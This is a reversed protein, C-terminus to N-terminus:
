EFYYSKFPLYLLPHFKVGKLSSTFVVNYPEFVLPVIPCEDVIIEFIKAYLELREGSDTSVKATALYNDVEENTYYTMNGAAGHNQSDFLSSLVYDCDGVADSMGMLMLEYNGAACEALLTGFELLDIEVDIGIEKLNFQIVESMLGASGAQTSIKVKFGDPYNSEAMLAKAAELDYDPWAYEDTYGFSYSTVPLKAEVATGEYAATILDQRNVAHAIAQRVKFDKFPAFNENMGLYVLMLGPGEVLDLDPNNRIEVLDVPDLLAAM